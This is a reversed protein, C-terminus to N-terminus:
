RQERREKVDALEQRMEKLRAAMKASVFYDMDRNRLAVELQQVATELNGSQYNAEALYLQGLDPDGGQGTATALMRYLKADGPYRRVLEELLTRADAYRTAALLTEAYKFSLPYNGPRLDLASRLLDLAQDARRTQKFLEAQAILYASRLPDKRLLKDLEKEAEVFKRARMQALILGYRQADENRYRGQELTTRFHTIADQPQKFHAEKLRARLLHYEVSDPRQRYPHSEARARSDAIRNTTVPHTRLFEPLTGDDYLRTQTGLRDFFDPMANPDFGGAALIGIGVRDAEEENGRTFNIQQQMLGAQVGAVAAQGVNKNDSAAGILIAAIIMAAAAISMNDAADYARNLHRQTVHAIEHAMVSALENESQTTLILGTNVGIHGGPGAFANVDQNDVLFFDFSLGPNDSHSVLDRGMSQLYEIALPDDALKMRARVYRMFAEGLRQEEVPTMLGGSPDGIEPLKLEEEAHLPAPLTTIPLLLILLRAVFARLLPRISLPNM